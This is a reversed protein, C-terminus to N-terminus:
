MGRRYISMIKNAYGQEIEGWINKVVSDRIRNSVNNTFWMDIQRGIEPKNINIGCLNALYDMLMTNDMSDFSLDIMNTMAMHTYLDKLSFNVNVVTPLGEKTWGGEQGKTINMNTIIGMDCNFLGKYFGRVLFPSFYGNPNGPLSRPCAFAILHILPVCINFYWSLKDCDPSTLKINIDYSRSFDSDNWIEPFILKGGAIISSFNTVINNLITSKSTIGSLLDNVNIANNYADADLLEAKNLIAASGMGLLFSIERTTDFIGNITSALMSQSTSNSFSEGIQDDSDIYFPVSGVEGVDLFSEMKKKTIKGWDINALRVSSIPKGNNDVETGYTDYTFDQIDLFQAAIRLMPNVYNYYDNYAFKFTYYKGKNNELLNDLKTGIDSIVNAGSKLLIELVGKKTDKNFKAMFEPAGPTLLLLPMRSVIKEAYKRGLAAGSDILRTDVNPLFQYPLGLINMVSKITYNDQDLAFGTTQEYFPALDPMYGDSTGIVGENRVAQEEESPADNAVEDAPVVEPEPEKQQEPEKEGDKVMFIKGTQNEICVYGIHNGTAENIALKWVTHAAANQGSNIVVSVTTGKKLTAVISSSTNPYMRVNLSDAIVKYKEVKKEILEVTNNTLIVWGYENNFLVEGWNYSTRYVDIQNYVSDGYGTANIQGLIRSNRTNPASYVKLGGETGFLVKYTAIVMRTAM